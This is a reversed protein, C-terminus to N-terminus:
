VRVKVTYMEKFAKLTQLAAAAAGEPSDPGKQATRVCWLSNICCDAALCLSVVACGLLLMQQLLLLMLHLLHELLM